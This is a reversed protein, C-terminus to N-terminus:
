PLSSDSQNSSQMSQKRTAADHLQKIEEETGAQLLVRVDGNNTLISRLAVGDERSILVAPIRVDDVGDGSMSFPFVPKVVNAESGSNVSTSRANDISISLQFQYM